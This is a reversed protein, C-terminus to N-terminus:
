DALDPIFYHFQLEPIFLSNFKAAVRRKLLAVSFIYMASSLQHLM